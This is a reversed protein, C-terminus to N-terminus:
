EEPFRHVLRKIGAKLTAAGFNLLLGVRCDALRLYTHLQRTHIPALSDIAKVEVIVSGEVIVDAYYATKITVEGYILPVRKSKEIQLGAMKLEYCLCALYASELLGPGLARHIKIAAAIIIATIQNLREATTAQPM